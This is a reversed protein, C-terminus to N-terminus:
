IKNNLNKTKEYNLYHEKIEDFKCKGFNGTYLKVFCTISDEQKKVIDMGTSNINTEIVINKSLNFSETDKGEEYFCLTINSITEELRIKNLKDMNIILFKESNSLIIKNNIYEIKYDFLELFIKLEKIKDELKIMLEKKIKQKIYGSSGGSKLEDEIQLKFTNLESSKIKCEKVKLEFSEKIFVEDIMNNFVTDILKQIDEKPSSKRDLLMSDGKESTKYELKDKEQKFINILSLISKKQHIEKNINLNDKYKKIKEEVEKREKEERLLKTLNSM